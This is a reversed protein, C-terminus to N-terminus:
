PTEEDPTNLCAEVQERTLSSLTDTQDCKKSCVDCLLYGGQITVNYSLPFREVTQKGRVGWTYAAATGNLVTERVIGEFDKFESLNDGIDLEM